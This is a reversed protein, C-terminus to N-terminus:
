FISIGFDRYLRYITKVKLRKKINNSSELATITKHIMASSTNRLYKYKRYLYVGYCVPYCILPYIHSKLVFQNVVYKVLVEQNKENNYNWKNISPNHIITLDPTFVNLYGADSVLLSPKLEEYGYKNSFYPETNKFFSRRLFHSGGCVMFCKRLNGYIIPGNESVRNAKWMLDYIQTTLTMIDTHNDLIDIGKVFFNMNTNIDIYADDDLFYVYEGKSKSFAYNRGIGAGLNESMKEYYIPYTKDSFFHKVKEETDDTSANDIIVFETEKPLKCHCCSSLAAVLQKARNWTIIAISLKM